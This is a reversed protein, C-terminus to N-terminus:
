RVHRAHNPSRHPLLLLLSPVSCPSDLWVRGHTLSHKQQCRPHRTDEPRLVRSEISDLTDMVLAPRVLRLLCAWVGSAFTTKAQKSTSNINWSQYYYVWLPLYKRRSDITCVCLGDDDSMEQKIRIGHYWLWGKTSQRCMHYSFLTLIFKKHTHVRYTFTCGGSNFANMSLFSDTFIFAFLCTVPINLPNSWNIFITNSPAISSFPFTSIPITMIRPFLMIVRSLRSAM